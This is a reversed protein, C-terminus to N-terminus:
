KGGLKCHQHGGGGVFQSAYAEDPFWQLANALESISRLMHNDDLM